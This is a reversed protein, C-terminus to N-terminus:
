RRTKERETGKGRNREKRKQKRPCKQIGEETDRCERM